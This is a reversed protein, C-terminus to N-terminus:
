MLVRIIRANSRSISEMSSCNQMGADLLVCPVFVRCSDVSEVAVCNKRMACVECFARMVARFQRRMKRLFNPFTKVLHSQRANKSSCFKATAFAQTGYHLNNDERWPASREQKHREWTGAFLLLLLALAHSGRNCSCRAKIPAAEITVTEVVM